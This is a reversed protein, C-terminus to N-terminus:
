VKFELKLYDNRLKIYTLDEIKYEVFLRLDGEKKKLQEIWDLSHKLLKKSSTRINSIVDLVEPFGQGEQKMIIYVQKRPVKERFVRGILRSEGRFEEDIYVESPNILNNSDSSLTYKIIEM